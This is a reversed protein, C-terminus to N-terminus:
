RRVRAFRCRRVAARRGEHFYGGNIQHVSFAVKYNRCVNKLISVYKETGFQQEGSDADNLGVYITRQVTQESM